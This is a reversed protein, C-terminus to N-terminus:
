MGNPSLKDFGKTDVVPVFGKSLSRTLPEWIGSTTLKDFWLGAM